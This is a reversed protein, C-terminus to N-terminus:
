SLDLKVLQQVRKIKEGMTWAPEKYDYDFYTPTVSQETGLLAEAPKQVTIKRYASRSKPAKVVDTSYITLKSRPNVEIVRRKYLQGEPTNSRGKPQSLTQQQEKFTTYFVKPIDLSQNYLSKPKADVTDPRAAEVRHSKIPTQHRYSIVSRVAKKYPRVDEMFEQLFSPVPEDRTRRGERGRTVHRSQTQPSVSLPFVRSQPQMLMKSTPPRIKVTATGHEESHQPSGQRGIRQPTMINLYPATAIPKHAYSSQAMIQWM